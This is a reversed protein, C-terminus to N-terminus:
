TSPFNVQQALEWPVWPKRSPTASDRSISGASTRTSTFSMPPPNPALPMTESSSITTAWSARRSPRGTRQTSLRM